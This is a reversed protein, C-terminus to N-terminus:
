KIFTHMVSIVAPGLMVIFIAPFIFLVLPILMKVPAKLAQERIALQRKTRVNSSQIKLVHAISVGMQDAQILAATFLSIDQVKCRDSLNKLATRRTVGVRIEQLMRALEDVLPGHMKEVVKALAGDFSLGAQVSVYILDLVGPLLKKMSERRATIRRNLGIVPIIMAFVFGLLVVRVVENGPVHFLASALFGCLVAFVISCVLCFLLFVDTSMGRFGGAALLKEEFMAYTAKPTLRRLFLGVKHFLPSILRERLPKALEEDAYLDQNLNTEYAGLREIAPKRNGAAIIAICLVTLVVLFLLGSIALLM